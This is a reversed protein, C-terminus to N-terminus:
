LRVAAIGPAVAFAERLTVLLHGLVLTTYLAARDTKSLKRLTL